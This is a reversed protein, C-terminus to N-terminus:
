GKAHQNAPTNGACLADRAMKPLHAKGQQNGCGRKEISRAVCAASFLVLVGIWSKGTITTAASM